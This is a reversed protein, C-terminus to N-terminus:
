DLKKTLTLNLEPMDLKQGKDGRMEIFQAGISYIRSDGSSDLQILQDSDNLFQFSGKVENVYNQNSKGLIKQKLVFHHDLTLELETDIGSCDHCPLVGQYTGVWDLANATDPTDLLVSASASDDMSATVNHDPPPNNENPKSCATLMTFSLCLALVTKQM